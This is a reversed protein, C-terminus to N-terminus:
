DTATDSSTQGAATMQVEEMEAKKAAIEEESMGSYLLGEALQNIVNTIAFLGLNDLVMDTFIEKTTVVDAKGGGAKYSAYLLSLQGDLDLKSISGIAQQINGAQSIERLAYVVRLTTALEYTRDGLKLNIM